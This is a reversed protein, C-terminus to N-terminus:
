VRTERLSPLGTTPITTKPQQQTQTRTQTDRGPSTSIQPRDLWRGNPGCDFRWESGRQGTQESPRGNTLSLIVVVTCVDVPVGSARACVCVSVCLCVCVCVRVCVCVCACLCVCVCVSVCVPVCPCLPVCVCVCGMSVTTRNKLSFSVAFEIPSPKMKYVENVLKSDIHVIPTRVPFSPPVMETENNLTTKRELFNVLTIATPWLHITSCEVIFCTMGNEQISPNLWKM